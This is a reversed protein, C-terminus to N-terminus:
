FVPLYISRLYHPISTISVLQESGDFFPALKPGTAKISFKNVRDEGIAASRAVDAIQEFRYIRYFDPKVASYFKGEAKGRTLAGRQLQMQVELVSGDDAHITWNEEISTKGDVGTHQRRDVIVKAPSYVGYAGPVGEQPMFGGFVMTGAIDTGAKKAPTILVAYSRPPLPKGDADQTITQNVLVVGLNFGKTPGAAPSNQQWGEPLIKQVAADSTKFTLITRMEVDNSSLKETNQAAAPFAALLLAAALLRRM